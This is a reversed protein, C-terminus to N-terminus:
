AKDCVTRRLIVDYRDLLVAYEGTRCLEAIRANFSDRLAPDKFAVRFDTVPPFLDHLEVEDMSHGLEKTFYVFISRDIVAVSGKDEWFRRIQEEQDAVEEYHDHHPAGPGFLREFAEGLERDAGQWTLVTYDGLDDITDIKLNDSRRSAAVNQFTIFPESYSVTDDGNQRVAVSVDARGRQVATQLDAYPMQTFTLAHDPLARRIIDVELGTSATRMVYPPIDLSIATTLEPKDAHAAQTILVSNLLILSLRALANRIM